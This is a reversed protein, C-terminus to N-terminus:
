CMGPAEFLLLSANLLLNFKDSLLREEKIEEKHGLWTGTEKLIQGTWGMISQQIVEQSPCPMM